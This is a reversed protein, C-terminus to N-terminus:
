SQRKPTLSFPAVLQSYERCTTWMASRDLKSTYADSVGYLSSEVPDKQGVPASEAAAVEEKKSPLSGDSPGGLLSRDPMGRPTGSPM